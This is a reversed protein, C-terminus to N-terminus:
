APGILGQKRLEKAAATAVERVFGDVNSPNTTNSQGGWVLKNQKLSYVLTEVAVITDTRIETGGWPSGWGYGYYGGWFGGYAPGAYMTPTATVRQQSGVPRMVVVAAFGQQELAARTKAEDTVPAISYMPVGQAGQATIERALADESARRTAENKAMVLAAVKSGEVRLPQAEPNRWTSSFGTTACGVFAAVALVVAALSM